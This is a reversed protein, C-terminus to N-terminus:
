KYRGYTENRGVERLYFKRYHKYTVYKLESICCALGVAKYGYQVSILRHACDTNTPDPSRQLSTM